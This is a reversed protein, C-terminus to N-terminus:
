ISWFGCLNFRWYFIERLELLNWTKRYMVSKSTFRRRVTGNAVHQSPLSLVRSSRTNLFLNRELRPIISAKTRRLAELPAKPRVFRKPAKCADCICKWPCKCGNKFVVYYVNPSTGFLRYSSLPLIIERNDATAENRVLFQSCDLRQMNSTYIQGLICAAAVLCLRPDLLTELDNGAV